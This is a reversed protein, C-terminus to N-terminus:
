RATEKATLGISLAQLEAIAAELDTRRASLKKEALTVGDRAAATNEEAVRLASAAASVAPVKAAESAKWAKVDDALLFRRFKGDGKCVPCDPVGVFPAGDCDCDVWRYRKNGESHIQGDLSWDAELMAGTLAERAAQEAGQAQRLAVQAMGLQEPAEDLARRAARIGCERLIARCADLAPIRLAERVEHDVHAALESLDTVAM